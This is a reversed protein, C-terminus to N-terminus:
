NLHLVVMLTDLRVYGKDKEIIKKHTIDDFLKAAPNDQKMLRTQYESIKNMQDVSLRVESDFLSGSM